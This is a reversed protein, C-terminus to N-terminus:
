GLGPHTALAWHGTGTMDGGPLWTGKLLRHGTEKAVANLLDIATTDNSHSHMGGAEGMGQWGGVGGGGRPRARSKSVPVARRQRPQQSSAGTVAGREGRVRVHGWIASPCSVDKPVDPSRPAAYGLLQPTPTLLSLTLLPGHSVGM